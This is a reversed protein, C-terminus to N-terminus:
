AEALTKRIADESEQDKRVKKALKLYDTIGYRHVASYVSAYEVGFYEAIEQVTFGQSLLQKLEDKNIRLGKRYRAKQQEAYEELRNNKVFKHVAQRTTGLEEGIQEYTKGAVLGQKIFRRKEEHTFDRRDKKPTKNKIVKIPRAM